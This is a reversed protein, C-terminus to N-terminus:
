VEHLLFVTSATDNTVHSVRAPPFYKNSCEIDCEVVDGEGGLTDCELVARFPVM